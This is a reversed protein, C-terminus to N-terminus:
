RGIREPTRLPNHKTLRDATQEVALKSAAERSYHEYGGQRAALVHLL